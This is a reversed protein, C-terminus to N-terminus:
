QLLNYSVLLGQINYTLLSAINLRCVLFCFARRIFLNPEAFLFSNGSKVYKTSFKHVNQSKKYSRLIQSIKSSKSYKPINKYIKNYMNLVFAFKISALPATM